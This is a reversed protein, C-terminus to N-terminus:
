NVYDINHLNECLIANLVAERLAIEPYELEEIRQLGEYRIPSVLYKSRLVEMVKDPMEILNSEIIDQFRLDSDSTGFRGIKFYSSTFYKQPNYSFLLLAANKLKGRDDTM